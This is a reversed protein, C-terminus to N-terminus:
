TSRTPRHREHSSRQRRGLRRVVHYDVIEARRHLRPRATNGNVPDVFYINHKSADATLVLNGQSDTSNDVAVQGNVFTAIGTAREADFDPQLVDTSIQGDVFTAQLPSHYTVAEGQTFDNGAVDITNGSVNGPTFTKENLEPTLAAALTTSLKIHTPDIVIM